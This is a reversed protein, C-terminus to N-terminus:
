GRPLRLARICNECRTEIGHMHSKRKGGIAQNLDRSRVQTASKPAAWEDGSRGPLARRGLTRCGDCSGVPGLLRTYAPGLCADGLLFPSPMALASRYTARATLNCVKGSGFLLRVHAPM